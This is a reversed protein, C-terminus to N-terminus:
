LILPSVVMDMNAHIPHHSHRLPANCTAGLDGFSPELQIGGARSRARLHARYTDGALEGLTYFGLANDIGANGNGLAM